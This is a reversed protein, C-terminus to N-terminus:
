NKKKRTIVAIYRGVQGETEVLRAPTSGSAGRSRFFKGHFQDDYDQYDGQQDTDELAAATTCATRPENL